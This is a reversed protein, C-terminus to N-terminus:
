TGYPLSQRLWEGVIDAYATPLEVAPSLRTPDVALMEELVDANLRAEPGAENLLM